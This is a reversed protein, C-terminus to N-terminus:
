SPNEELVDKLVKRVQEAAAQQARQIAQLVEAALDESGKRMARPDIVLRLVQGGGSSAATVQGSDSTAEVGRTDLEAMREAMERQWTDLNSVIKEIRDLAPFEM